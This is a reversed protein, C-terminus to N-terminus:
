YWETHSYEGDVYYVYEYEVCDWVINGDEDVTYHYHSYVYLDYHSDDCDDITYHTEGDDTTKILTGDVWTWIEYYSSHTSADVSITSMAMLMMVVFIAIYVKRIM